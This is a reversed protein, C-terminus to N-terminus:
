RKSKSFLSGKSLVFLVIFFIAVGTSDILVDSVAGRRGKVFSQHLEDSAAYSVALLAPYLVQQWSGLKFSGRFARWSLFTLIFYELGHAIKRLLFDEKFDSKLDPISSFTFILAAWLIVPLWLKLHKM